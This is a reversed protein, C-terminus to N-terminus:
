TVGWEDHLELERLVTQLWRFKVNTEAASLEGDCSLNEPSLDGEINEFIERVESETLPEEILPEGSLSKWINMKEIYIELPSYESLPTTRKNM